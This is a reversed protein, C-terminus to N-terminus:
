RSDHQPVTLRNCMGGVSASVSPCTLRSANIMAIVMDSREALQLAAAFERNPSRLADAEFYIMLGFAVIDRTWVLELTEEEEEEISDPLELRELLNKESKWFFCPM